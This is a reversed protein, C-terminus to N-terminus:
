KEIPSLFSVDNSQVVVDLDDYEKMLKEVNKTAFIWRPSPSNIDFGLRDEANDIVKNFIEIKQIMALKALERNKLMMTNQVAVTVNKSEQSSEYNKRM